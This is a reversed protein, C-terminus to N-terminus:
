RFFVDKVLAAIVLALVILFILGGIGTGWMGGDMMKQMLNSWYQLRSSLWQWSPADCMASQPGLRLRSVFDAIM